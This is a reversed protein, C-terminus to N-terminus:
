LLLVQNCAFGGFKRVEEWETGGVEVKYRDM